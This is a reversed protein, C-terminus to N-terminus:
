TVYVASAVALKVLYRMRFANERPKPVRELSYFTQEEYITREQKLSALLKRVVVTKSNFCCFTGYKNPLSVVALVLNIVSVLFLFKPSIMM